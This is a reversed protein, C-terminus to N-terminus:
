LWNGVLLFSAWFFPHEFGKTKILKIQAQRLSEAKSNKPDALNSYFESILQQTASDSVPWLAGMVSRAGSKLAVGALGLPSRDDGEATQCASLTILEVPQEALQKPKIYDELHNMTLCKDYAMIFNQEPTGGFYGHSAIHIVGYNNTKLEQSFRKLLFDKNLLMHNPITLSLNKIERDVGPLALFEKINEVTNKPIKESNKSIHKQNIKNEKVVTPLSRLNRDKLKMNITSLMDWIQPPLDLVVDGPESVGALLIKMENRPLPRPDLLSLGPETAVAYKEVLYKNGDYLAAIPLMRFVGDPVFILTNVHQADFLPELPRILWSYIVQSLNEHLWNNRFCLSLRKVMTELREKKILNSKLYLQGGIDALLELRNELIIPYIVATGPSLSDVQQTLADICPDKFYDRMQSQKISEIARQAQRLLNQRTASNTEQTAQILLMDALELYIPSLSKRFSVCGEGANSPIDQRITQIYYVARWLASIAKKQQGQGRLVRGLQWEWKLLLDNADLTQAATLAQETLSQAEKFRDQIEYLNGMHGAALSTLRVSGESVALTLAEQLAEFRFALHKNLSSRAGAEAAIGLLLTAREVPSTIEGAMQRAAVLHTMALDDTKEMRALNRYITASLGSDNGRRSLDLAKLYRDHAKASQGQNYLLTGLRNACSAALAHQDLSIAKEFAATLLPEALEPRQELVYIYGLSQAAVVELLPHNGAKSKELAASFDSRAKSFDGLGRYAEGRRVLTTIEEKGKAYSLVLSWHEIAAAYDDQFSLSDEDQGAHISHVMVLGLLIVGWVIWKKYTKGAM